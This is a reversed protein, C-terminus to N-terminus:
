LEEKGNYINEVYEKKVIYYLLRYRKLAERVEKDKLLTTEMIYYLVNTKNYKKSQENDFSGFISEWDDLIQLLAIGVKYENETLNQEEKNDVSYQIAEKIKEIIRKNFKTQEESDEPTCEDVLGNGYSPNFSVNRNDEKQSERRKRILYNKCITGCYSYAKYGKSVDFKGIKEMLVSMTDDFTDEFTENIVFLGYRRILSEIMKTFAPELITTFIRQREMPNECVIYDKVAQEERKGFYNGGSKSEGM